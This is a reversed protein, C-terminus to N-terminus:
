KEKEGKPPAAHPQSSQAPRSTAPHSTGAQSTTAPPTAQPRPTGGYRPGPVGGFYTRSGGTARPTVPTSQPRYFYVAGGSPQSARPGDRVALPTVNRGTARAIVAVPPGAHPGIQPAPMPSGAAPRPVVHHQVPDLFHQQDVWVWRRPQEVVVAQPGLACWGAYGGNWRWAVWAPAWVQGPIWYWGFDPSFGWRGYHYVAWGFPEDSVWAWGAETWEWHGYLYPRWESGVGAPQWVRGYEPTDIWQGSNMLAGDNQFDDISPGQAPPPVDQQWSMEDDGPYSYDQARALRPIALSLAAIAIATRTM